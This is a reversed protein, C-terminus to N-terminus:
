CRDFRGRRLRTALRLAHSRHALRACTGTRAFRRGTRQELGLARCLDVVRWAPPNNQLVVGFEM